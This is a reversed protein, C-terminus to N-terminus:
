PEAFTSLPMSGHVEFPPTLVIHSNYRLLATLYCSLSFINVTILAGEDAGSPPPRLLARIQLCGAKPDWLHFAIDVDM